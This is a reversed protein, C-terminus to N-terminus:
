VYLVTAGHEASPAIAASCALVNSLEGARLVGYYLSVRKLTRRLHQTNLRCTHTLATTTLGYRTWRTGSAKHTTVSATTTM